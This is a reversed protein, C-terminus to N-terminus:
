PMAKMRMPRVHCYGLGVSAVQHDEGRVDLIMGVQPLNPLTFTGLNRDPVFSGAAGYGGAERWVVIRYSM